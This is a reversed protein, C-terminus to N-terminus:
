LTAYPRTQAQTEHSQMGNVWAEMVKAPSVDIWVPQVGSPEGEVTIAYFLLSGIAHAPRRRLEKVGGYRALRAADRVMKGLAAHDPHQNEVPTPALVWAPAAPAPRPPDTVTLARLTLM